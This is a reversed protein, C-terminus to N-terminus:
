TSVTITPLRPQEFIQPIVLNSISEDPREGGLGVLDFWRQNTLVTQKGDKLDQPTGILQIRHSM